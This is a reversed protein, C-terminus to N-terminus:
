KKSETSGLSRKNLNSPLSTKVGGAFLTKRETLTTSIGMQSGAWIVPIIGSGRSCRSRASPITGFRPHMCVHRSSQLNVYLDFISELEDPQNGNLKQSRGHRFDTTAFYGPHRHLNRIDNVLTDVFEPEIAREMLLWGHEAFHALQDADAQNIHGTAALARLRNLWDPQDTWLGPLTVDPQFSGPM